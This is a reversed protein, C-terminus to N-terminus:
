RREVEGTVKGGVAIVDSAELAIYLGKPNGDEDKTFKVLGAEEMGRLMLKTMKKLADAEIRLDRSAREYYRHAVIWTVLAGVSVGILSMIIETM